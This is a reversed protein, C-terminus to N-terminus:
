GGRSVVLASPLFSTWSTISDTAQITAAELHLQWKQEGVACDVSLFMVPGCSATSCRRCQLDGLLKGLDEAPGNSTLPTSARDYRRAVIELM